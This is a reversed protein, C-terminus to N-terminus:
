ACDFRVSHLITAVMNTDNDWQIPQALHVLWWEGVTIGGSSSVVLLKPYPPTFSHQIVSLTIMCVIVHTKGKSSHINAFKLALM